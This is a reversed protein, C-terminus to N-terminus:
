AGLEAVVGFSVAVHARGAVLQHRGPCKYVFPGRQQIARSLVIAIRAREFRAATGLCGEALNRAILMFACAINSSGENAGLSEFLRSTIALADLHSKGVQLANKPEIPKGETAWSPSLVPRHKSCDGLGEPAERFENVGRRDGGRAKCSGFPPLLYSGVVDGPARAPHRCGSAGKTPSKLLVI